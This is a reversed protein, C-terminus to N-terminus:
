AVGAKQEIQIMENPVDRESLVGSQAEELATSDEWDIANMKLVYADGIIWLVMYVMVAWFSYVQFELSAERFVSFWGWLFVVEVDFLIFLMGVLYFKVPFRERADGVPTVGCEYPSRKYATPNRPGLLSSLLVLAVAILGALAMLVVIPMYDGYMM